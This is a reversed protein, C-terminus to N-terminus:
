KKHELANITHRRKIARILRNKPRKKNTGGHMHFGVQKIDAHMNDLRDHIPNKRCMELVESIINPLYSISTMIIFVIAVKGMDTKPSMDGYGVTSLTVFIFYVTNGFNDFQQDCNDQLAQCPKEAVFMLAAASLTVFMLKLVILCGVLQKTQCKKELPVIFHLLGLFRLTGGLNYASYYGNPVITICGVSLCTVIDVILLVSCKVKKRDILAAAAVTLIHTAFGVFVITESTMIQQIVHKNESFWPSCEPSGNVFTADQTLFPLRHHEVVRTGDCNDVCTQNIDVPAGLTLVNGCANIIRQNTIATVWVYCSMAFVIAIWMQYLVDDIIHSITNKFFNGIIILITTIGGFSLFMIVALLSFSGVSPHSYNSADWENLTVFLSVSGIIVATLLILIDKWM